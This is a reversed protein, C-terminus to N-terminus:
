QGFCYRWYLGAAALLLIFLVYLRVPPTMLRVATKMFLLFFFTFPGSRDIVVPIMSGRNLPPMAQLDGLEALCIDPSYARLLGELSRMAAAVCDGGDNACSNEAEALSQAALEYRKRVPIHLAKLYALVRRHATELQDSVSPPAPAARSSKGSPKRRSM